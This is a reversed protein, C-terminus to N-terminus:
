GLYDSKHPNELTNIEEEEYEDTDSFNRLRCAVIQVNSKNVLLQIFIPKKGMANYLRKLDKDNM